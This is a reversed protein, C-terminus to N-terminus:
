HRELCTLYCSLYMKKSHFRKSMVWAGVNVVKLDPTRSKGSYVYSMIDSHEFNLIANTSMYPNV